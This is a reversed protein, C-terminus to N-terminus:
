QMPNRDPWQTFPFPPKDTLFTLFETVQSIYRSIMSSFKLLEPNLQGGLVTLLLQAIVTVALIWILIWFVVAFVLMYLARAALPM